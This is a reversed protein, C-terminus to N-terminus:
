EQFHKKFLNEKSMMLFKPTLKNKKFFDLKGKPHCIVFMPILYLEKIKRYFWNDIDIVDFGLPKVGRTLVTIGIIGKIQEIEPHQALYAALGPLSSQVRQYVYLARKVDHDIAQMERMLQCNHLHIKLLLDGHQITVGDQLRISKGRYRLLRVRFINSESRNVFQLRTTHYYIKDFLSWTHILPSM